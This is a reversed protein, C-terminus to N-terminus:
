GNKKGKKIKGEDDVAGPGEDVGNPGGGGGGPNSVDVGDLNNGHGNNNKGLTTVCVIDQMDFGPDLPDSSGLEFTHIVDRPGVTIDNNEDLFQTMFSQNEVVDLGADGNILADVGVDPAVTWHTPGWAGTPTRGRAAFDIRTGVDVNNQEIVIEDPIVDTSEGYFVLEWASGEGIRVWLAVPLETGEEELSVGIVRVKVDTKQAMTIQGSGADIVGLDSVKKPYEINWVMNPQVGPQVVTPTVSISGVPTFPDGHVVSQGFLPSAAAFALGPLVLRAAKIKM